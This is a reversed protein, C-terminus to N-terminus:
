SNIFLISSALLVQGWFYTIINFIKLPYNKKKDGFLIFALSGDSLLFFFAGIGLSLLAFIGNEDGSKYVGTGLSVAKTFMTIIIFTYLIVAYKLFSPNFQMKGIFKGLLVCVTFASLIFIVEAKNFQSYGPIIGPLASIFAKCYVIHGLMFSTFGTVFYKTTPKAHLFYDGIWGFGLGILMTIAFKSYNDSIFVSLVGISFFMCSCVMKLCLSKFCKEPWLAKLYWPTFIAEAILCLVFLVKLIM